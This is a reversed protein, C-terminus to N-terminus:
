VASPTCPDEQQRACAVRRMHYDHQLRLAQLNGFIKADYRTLKREEWRPRVEDNVYTAAVWGTAGLYVTVRATQGDTPCRYTATRTCFM